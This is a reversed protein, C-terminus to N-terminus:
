RVWKMLLSPLELISHCMLGFGMDELEVVALVVADVVVAAISSGAEVEVVDEARHGRQCRVRREDWKLVSRSCHRMREGRWCRRSLMLGLSEREGEGGLRPSTRRKRRGAM